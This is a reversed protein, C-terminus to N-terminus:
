NIVGVNLSRTYKKKSNQQLKHGPCLDGGTGYCQRFWPCFGSPQVLYCAATNSTKCHHLTDDLSGSWYVLVVYM